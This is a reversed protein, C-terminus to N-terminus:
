PATIPPEAANSAMRIRNNQFLFRRSQAVKRPDSRPDQRPGAGGRARRRPEWIPAAAVKPGSSRGDERDRSPDAAWGSRCGASAGAGAIEPPQSRYISGFHHLDASPKSASAKTRRARSPCGRGQAVPQHGAPNRGSQRREGRDGQRGAGGPERGPWARRQLHFHFPHHALQAGASGGWFFARLGLAGRWTRPGQQTEPPRISSSLGSRATM